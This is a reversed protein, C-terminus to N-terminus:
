RGGLDIGRNRENPRPQAALSQARIGELRGILAEVDSPFLHTYRDMTVAISSHGLHVQVAKPNAGAAALLSACTHRLDHVRLGQPLEPELHASAPVTELNFGGESM